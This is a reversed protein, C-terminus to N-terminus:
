DDFRRLAMIHGSMRQKFDDYGEPTLRATEKHSLKIPSLTEKMFAEAAKIEQAGKNAARAHRILWECTRLYRYDDVGDATREWGITDNLGNRSPYVVAWSGEDDTFDFYPDSCVYMFGNRLFGTLGARAAVFAWRGIDHRVRSGSYDWIQKGAAKVLQLARDDLHSISIPMTQFYVDRGGGTSYYGAFLTSPCARTRIKILEACPEVNRYEPRPEDLFSFVRKPWGKQKIHREVDSYVLRLLEEYSVGFRKRAAAENNKLADKSTDNPVGQVDLGQYADGPMSLGHKVALGMWRDFDTYDIKAKGDKLGNLRMGPGGTVANMGHEAQNALVQEAMEWWRENMGPFWHRWAGATSGTV